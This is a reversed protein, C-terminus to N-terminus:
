VVEYTLDHETTGTEIVDANINRLLNVYYYEGTIGTVINDSDLSDRIRAVWKYTSTDYEIMISLERPTGSDDWAMDSEGALRFIVTNIGSSASSNNRSIAFIGCPRTPLVGKVNTSNLYVTGTIVGTSALIPSLDIEGATVALRKSLGFVGNSNTVRHSFKWYRDGLTYASVLPTGGDHKSILFSPVATNYTSPDASRGGAILGVGARANLLDFDGTGASVGARFLPSESDFDGLDTIPTGNVTLSGLIAVAGTSKTFVLSKSDGVVGLTVTDSLFTTTSLDKGVKFLDVSGTTVTLDETITTAGSSVVNFGGITLSSPTFAGGSIGGTATISGTTSISGASLAGTTSFSGSTLTGGVTLDGSFSGDGDPTLSTKTTTNSLFSLTSTSTLTTAGLETRTAYLDGSILSPM